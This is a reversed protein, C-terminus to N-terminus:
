IQRFTKEIKGVRKTLQDLEKKDAKNKDTVTFLAIEIKELTEKIEQMDEKTALNKMDDKTAFNKLDDKTSFNQLNEEFKQDLKRDLLDEIQKLTLSTM